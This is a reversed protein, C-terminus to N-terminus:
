KKLIRINVVVRGQLFGHDHPQQVHVVSGVEISWQVRILGVVPVVPEALSQELEDVKL